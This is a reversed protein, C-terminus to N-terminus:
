KKYGGGGISLRVFPGTLGIKPGRGISQEDLMWDGTMPAFTYGARIGVVIGGAKKEDEKLIMLYDAGLSFSMLFGGTFLNSGHRPDNLIDDFSPSTRERIELQVGGFGLGFMPYILWNNESYMTYGLNFFGAGGMVSTRYAQSSADSGLYGHGEGGILFRRFVGYGGGGLTLFNGSISSYDHKRFRNNLPKVNLKSGGVMFYGRGEGIRKVGDQAFLGTGTFLIVLFVFLFVTFFSNIRNM